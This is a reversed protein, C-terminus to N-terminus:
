QQRVRSLSLTTRLLRELHLLRLKMRGSNVMSRVDGVMVRNGVVRVRSSMIRRDLDFVLVVHYAKHNM